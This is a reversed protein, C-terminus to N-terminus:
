SQTTAINLSFCGHHRKWIARYPEIDVLDWAPLPLKDLNKLVKRSPTIATESSKKFALGHIASLDASTELGTLLEQLTEEGEGRVVYDVGHPFYKEYHDTADSSCVIVTSGQKKATKAMEFAAERMNTLCMKTLYNFGDDYIVVYKAPNRRLAEKFQEPGDKLNTDFLSVEFGLERVVAAAILTGLPPYPQKFRWQKPDFKYFYSHTILVKNM